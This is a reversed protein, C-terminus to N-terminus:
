NHQHQLHIRKQSPSLKKFSDILCSDDWPLAKEPKIHLWEQNLISRGLEKQLDNKFSYWTYYSSKNM